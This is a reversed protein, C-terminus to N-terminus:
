GKKLVAALRAKLQALSVPKVLYGNADLRKASLVSQEQADATLFVVPTEKLGPVALARLASLFAFGDTPQMHIDCLVVGPRVRVVERLGLTGDGAMYINRVGLQRLMQRILERTHAEDEIIMATLDAFSPESM